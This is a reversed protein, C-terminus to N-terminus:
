YHIYVIHKLKLKYIIYIHYQPIDVLRHRIMQKEHKNHLELLCYSISLYCVYSEYSM